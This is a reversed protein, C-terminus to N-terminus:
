GVRFGELGHGAGGAFGRLVVEAGGADDGAVLLVVFTDEVTGVGVFVLAM